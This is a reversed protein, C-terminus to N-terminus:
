GNLLQKAYEPGSLHQGSGIERGYNQDVNKIYLILKKFDLIKVKQDSFFNILNQRDGPATFRVKIEDLYSDFESM